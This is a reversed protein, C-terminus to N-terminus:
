LQACEESGIDKGLEWWGGRLGNQKRIGYISRLKTRHFTSILDRRKDGFTATEQLCCFYFCVFL